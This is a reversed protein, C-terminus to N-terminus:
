KSVATHLREAAASLATVRKQWIADHRHLDHLAATAAYCLDDMVHQPVHMNDGRTHGAILGNCQTHAVCSEREGPTVCQRASVGHRSVRSM